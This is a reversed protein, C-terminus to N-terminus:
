WTWRRADALRRVGAGAAFTLVKGEAFTDLVAKL